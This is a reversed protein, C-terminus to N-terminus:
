GPGSSSTAPKSHIKKLSFHVLSISKWVLAYILQPTWVSSNLFTKQLCLTMLKWVTWLIVAVMRLDPSLVTWCLSEHAPGGVPMRPSLLM